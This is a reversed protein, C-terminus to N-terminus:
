KEWKFLIRETFYYLKNILRYKKVRQLQSIPFSWTQYDQLIKEPLMEKLVQLREAKDLETARTSIGTMDFLTVDINAYEIKENGWIIAQLYWKWDSVIKLSEDYLGYKDFLDRRIYASSHNLTGRYFDLMTPQRGKFSKDRFLGERMQKLLNGYLISVGESKESPLFNLIKSIKEMVDNAALCDGSNLFQIYEGKAMQIGKNMAHYIGNDKESIWVFSNEILYHNIVDQSNDTSGGDVVIYEFEKLTQSFVSQMTKKLGSANNYNITIISLKM